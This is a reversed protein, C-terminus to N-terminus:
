FLKNLQQITDEPSTVTYAETLPHNFIEFDNGGEYTKDGFFLIRDYKDEVFKLCYTKDWGKPFIDMSIQGGISYSLNLDALESKLYDVMTERVKHEKDYKEFNDREEQSCNRGIPSVNIMGHRFEVFTGRKIPIDLESLYRLITNILKKLNEEGLEDKFSTKNLLEGNHYAMLGNESFIYTFYKFNEEKVQEKQKELDSGGVIGLDLDEILNMKALQDIMNQKIIKRSVTLTGDVDFLILTKM